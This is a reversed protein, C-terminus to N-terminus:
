YKYSAILELSNINISCATLFAKCSNPENITNLLFRVNKSNTVFDYIEQRNYSM